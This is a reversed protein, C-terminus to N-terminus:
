GAVATEAIRTPVPEVRWIDMTCEWVTRDSSFRGMRASNLISMRTWAEQDRWTADVRDQAIVYDDFDALVLFPDGRQLLSEVIPAFLDPATPPCRAPPLFISLPM